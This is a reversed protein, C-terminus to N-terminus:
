AITHNKMISAEFWIWDCLKLILAIKALNIVLCSLRVLCGFGAITTPQSWQAAKQTCKLSLRHQWRAWLKHTLVHMNNNNNNNNNNPIQIEHISCVVTWTVITATKGPVWPFKVPPHPTMIMWPVTSARMFPCGWSIFFTDTVPVPQKCHITRM